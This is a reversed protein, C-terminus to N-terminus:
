KGKKKHTIATPSGHQDELTYSPLIEDGSFLGFFPVWSITTPLQHNTGKEM